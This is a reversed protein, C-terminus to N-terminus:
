FQLVHDCKRDRNLRIVTKVTLRVLPTAMIKKKKKPHPDYFQQIATKVDNKVWLFNVQPSKPPVMYGGDSRGIRSLYSQRFNYCCSRQQM